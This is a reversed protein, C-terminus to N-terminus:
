KKFENILWERAVQMEMQYEPDDLEEDSGESWDDDLSTNCSGSTSSSLSGSQGNELLDAVSEMQLLMPQDVKHGLGQDYQQVLSGIRGKLYSLFDAQM